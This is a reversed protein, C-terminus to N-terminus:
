PRPGASAPLDISFRAGKESSEVSVRGGILEVMARVIALGLGAGKIKGQHEGRYFKEFIHPLDREPIGPGEDTVFLTVRGARNEAGLVIGGGPKSYKAANEVLNHLAQALLGYDAQLWLGAPADVRLTRGPTTRSSALAIEELLPEVEIPELRPKVAGGELRSMELLNQVTATLRDTEGEIVALFNSRDERTWAVTDDRLSQVAAKIATLPSRLDHSVGSLLISKFEDARRLAEV